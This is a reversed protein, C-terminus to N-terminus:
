NKCRPQLDFGLHRRCCDLSPRAPRRPIGFGHRPTRTPLGAVRVGRRVGDWCPASCSPHGRYIAEQFEEFRSDVTLGPYKEPYLEIGTEM